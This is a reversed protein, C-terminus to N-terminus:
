KQLWKNKPMGNPKDKDVGVLNQVIWAVWTLSYCEFSLMFKVVGFAYFELFVHLVKEVEL